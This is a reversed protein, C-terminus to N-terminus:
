PVTQLPYIQGALPKHTLEMEAQLANFPQGTEAGMRQALPSHRRNGAEGNVNAAALGFVQGGANDHGVRNVM